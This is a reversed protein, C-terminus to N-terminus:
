RHGSTQQHRGSGAVLDVVTRSVLVEGPEALAQVRQATHVVIGSVDDGRLEVEGTHLGSRVELGHPLLADRIASACRIARAPGDFMALTGDGTNKVLRGRFLDLQRAVSGDYVDLLDRWREDGMSAARQTSTVIDVFLVTTLVRDTPVPRREGTVFMEIEALIADSDGTYLLHDRGSVGVFRAGPISEALVRGHEPSFFEDGTRHIVLTPARVASLVDRVDLDLLRNRQAYAAGPSAALRFFRVASEAAQPDDVLSPAVRSIDGDLWIRLIDKRHETADRSGLAPLGVFPNVVVLSGVRDPHMAAFVIAVLSATDGAILATRGDTAGVADLVARLDDAFQELFPAGHDSLADSLGTGRKDFLIVRGIGALHRVFRALPAFDWLAEINSNWHPVFVIDPPGDGLVQYAIYDAGVTTFRTAPAGLVARMMGDVTQM